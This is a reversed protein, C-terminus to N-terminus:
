LYRYDLGSPSMFPNAPDTYDIANDLRRVDAQTAQTAGTSPWIASAARYVGQVPFIADYTANGLRALLSGPPAADYVAGGLNFDDKGTLNAGLANVGRYAYNEDSTPNLGTGVARAGAGISDGVGGLWQGVGGAADAVSRRLMYVAAGGVIAVALLLRVTERNSKTM